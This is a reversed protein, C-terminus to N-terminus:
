EDYLHTGASHVIKWGDEFREVMYMWSGHSRVTDGTTGIMEWRYEIVTSAVDPGFVRTHPNWIEMELFRDVGSVATRLDRVFADYDDVLEGDAALVFGEVDAWMQVGRDVDLERIVDFYSEITQEVETVVAAEDEASMVSPAQPQCAAVALVCLGALTVFSARM